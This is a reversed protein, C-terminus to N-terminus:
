VSFDQSVINKILRPKQGVHKKVINKIILIKQKSYM